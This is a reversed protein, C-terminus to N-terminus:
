NERRRGKEKRRSRTDARHLPYELKPVHHRADTPLPQGDRPLRVRSRQGFGRCASGATWNPVMAGLVSLCVLFAAVAVKALLGRVVGVSMGM